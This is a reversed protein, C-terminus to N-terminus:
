RHRRSSCKLDQRQIRIDVIVVNAGASAFGRSLESCIHGGGGVVVATKGELSFLGELNRSSKVQQSTM